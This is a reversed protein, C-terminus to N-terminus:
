NWSATLWADYDGPGQEWYCWTRPPPRLPGPPADVLVVSPADVGPPPRLLRWALSLGAAGAGIVVVDCHM